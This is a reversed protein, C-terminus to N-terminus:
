FRVNSHLRRRRSAQLQSDRIRSLQRKAPLAALSKSASSIPGLNGRSRVIGIKDCEAPAEACAFLGDSDSVQLVSIDHRWHGTGDQFSQRFRCLLVVHRDVSQPLRVDDATSSGSGGGLRWRCIRRGPETLDPLYAQCRRGPHRERTRPCAASIAELVDPLLADAGFREALVALRYRGIRPCDRCSFRVVVFPYDRLRLQPSM